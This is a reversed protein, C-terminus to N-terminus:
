PITAPVISLHVHRRRPGDFECLYIGQWRGLVMAQHAIPLVLSFGMISAQVHAASNGEAHRYAPDNQPVLRQMAHAMDRRVDPDANENITLGATTHPSFLYLLGESVQAANIHSAVLDTIEYFTVREATQIDLRQLNM